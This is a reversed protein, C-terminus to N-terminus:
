AKPLSRALALRGRDDDKLNRPSAIQKVPEGIESALAELDIPMVATGCIMACKM